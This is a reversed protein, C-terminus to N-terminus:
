KVMNEPKQSSNEPKAEKSDKANETDKDAKAEKDTPAQKGTVDGEVTRLTKKTRYFYYGAGGIGAIVLIALVIELPGTNPLEQCGEM